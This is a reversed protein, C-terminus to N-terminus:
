QKKFGRLLSESLMKRTREGLPQAPQGRNRRRPMWDPYEALRGAIRQIEESLSGRVGALMVRVETMSISGESDAAMRPVGHLCNDLANTLFQAQQEPRSEKELAAQMLFHKVDTGGYVSQCLQNLREPNGMARIMKALPLDKRIQRLMKFFCEEVRDAVEDNSCGDRIAQVV